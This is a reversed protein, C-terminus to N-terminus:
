TAYTHRGPSPKHLTDRKPGSIHMDKRQQQCRRARWANGLAKGRVEGQRHMACASPSRPGCRTRGRSPGSPDCRTQGCSCRPRSSQGIRRARGSRDCRTPGCSWRTHGHMSNTKVAACM